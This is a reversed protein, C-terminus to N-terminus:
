GMDRVATESLAVQRSKHAQSVKGEHAEDEM